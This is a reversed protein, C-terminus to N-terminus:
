HYANVVEFGDKLYWGQRGTLTEIKYYGQSQGVVLYVAGGLLESGIRVGDVTISSRVKSKVFM